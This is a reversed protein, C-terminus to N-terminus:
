PKEEVVRSEVGDETLEIVRVGRPLEGYANYGSIRGYYLHMGEYDAFFDNDHDHGVFIHHIASKGRLTDFLGTNKKPSCVDEDQHGVAAGAKKAQNYEEVPIHMFLLGEREGDDLSLLAQIQEEYIYAYNGDRDYDGSDLFYLRYPAADYFYLERGEIVCRGAKAVHNKMRSVLANLTRRDYQNESDHNGWVIAVPTDLSDFFDLVGSVISLSGEELSWHLDGTLVLMDPKQEWVMHRVMSATRRDEGKFPYSGFHLDTLQMLKM